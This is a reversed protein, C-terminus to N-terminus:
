KIIQILTKAIERQCVCIYILYFILFTSGFVLLSTMPTECSFLAVDNLRYFLGVAAISFILNLIFTRSFDWLKMDIIKYLLMYWSLFYGIISLVVQGFAVAEVTYHCFVYTSPVFLLLRYVTYKFSVDTRGTSIVINGVPNGIVVFMGWVSLISVIPAVDSYTQGYMIEVIPFSLAGMAACLPVNVVSLFSILKKYNERMAIKDNQISSFYPLAVKNAIGNLVDLARLILEKALNYLGLDATGLFKGMILIDIKTSIYDLIQTGTQFVGIKVLSKVHAFSCYFILKTQSFGAVLNWINLMITNLLTSLVLSYVGAGKIALIIALGLSVISSIINRIAMLKFQFNKQLLVEYLRGVGKFLLDLMVIPLLITLDPEDYIRAIIPSSISIAIYMVIFLLFQIWYLSSFEKQTLDKKHMVSAAFGLDCFTQTLGLILTLIAVIGFDSKELFRALISLRLIQTLAMAITSTTTWMTGSVIKSNVM